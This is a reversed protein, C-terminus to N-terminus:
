LPAPAPEEVPATLTASPAARLPPHLHPPAPHCRTALPSIFSADDLGMAVGGGLDQLPNGFVPVGTAVRDELLEDVLYAGGWGGGEEGKVEGGPFTRRDVLGVGAHDVDAGGATPEGEEDHEETETAAHIDLEGQGLGEFVEQGAVLVGELIRGPDGEADHDVVGLDGDQAM